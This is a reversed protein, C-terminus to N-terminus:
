QKAKRDAHQMEDMRVLKGGEEMYDYAIMKSSWELRNMTRYTAAYLRKDLHKLYSKGHEETFLFVFNLSLVRDDSLTKNEKDNIIISQRRHSSLQRTITVENVIWDPDEPIDADLQGGFVTYNYKLKKRPKDDQTTYEDESGSDGSGDEKDSDEEDNNRVM